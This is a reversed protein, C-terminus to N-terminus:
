GLMLDIIEEEEMGLKESLKLLANVGYINLRWKEMLQMIKQLLEVDDQSYYRVNNKRKPQVFGEEDYIRLTRPHCNLMEATISITYVPRERKHLIM